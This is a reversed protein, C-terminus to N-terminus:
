ICAALLDYLNDNSTPNVGNVATIPLTGPMGNYSFMYDNMGTATRIGISGNPLQCISCMESKRWRSRRFNAVTTLDNFETDVYDPTSVITLYTPM